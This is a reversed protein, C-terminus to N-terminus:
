SQTKKEDYGDVVLHVVSIMCVLQQYNETTFLRNKWKLRMDTKKKNTETGVGTDGEFDTLVGLSVPLWSEASPPVPLLYPLIM